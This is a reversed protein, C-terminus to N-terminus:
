GIPELNRRPATQIGLSAPWRTTPKPLVQWSWSANWRSASHWFGSKWSANRRPSRFRFRSPMPRTFATSISGPWTDGTLFSIPPTFSSASRFLIMPAEPENSFNWRGAGCRSRKPNTPAHRRSTSSASLFRIVALEAAMTLGVPGAGVLLVPARSKANM